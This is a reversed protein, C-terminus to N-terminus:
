QASQGGRLRDSNKPSLLQWDQKTLAKGFSVIGHSAVTISNNKNHGTWVSLMKNRRKQGPRTGRTCRRGRRSVDAFGDELTGRRPGQAASHRQTAISQLELTAEGESSSANPALINNSFPLEMGKFAGYRQYHDRIILFCSCAAGCSARSRSSHLLQLPNESTQLNVESHKLGAPASQLATVYQADYVPIVTPLFSGLEQEFGIVTVRRGIWGKRYNTRHPKHPPGIIPLSVQSSAVRVSVSTLVDLVWSSESLLVGAVLQESLFSVTRRWPSNLKRFSSDHRVKRRVSGRQGTEDINFYLQTDSSLVSRQVLFSHNQNSTFETTSKKVTGGTNTDTYRFLLQSPLSAGMAGM